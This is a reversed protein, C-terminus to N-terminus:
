VEVARAARTAANAALWCGAFVALYFIDGALM